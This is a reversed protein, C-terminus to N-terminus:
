WGYNGTHVSTELRCPTTSILRRGRFREIYGSAVAVQKHRNPPAHRPVPRSRGESNRPDGRLRPAHSRPAAVLLSVEDVLERASTGEDHGSFLRSSARRNEGSRSLTLTERCIGVRACANRRRPGTAPAEAQRVSGQPTSRASLRLRGSAPRWTQTCNGSKVNSPTLAPPRTPPPTPTSTRRPDSARVSGIPLVRRQSLSSATRSHPSM